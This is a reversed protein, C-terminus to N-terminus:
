EQSIRLTWISRILKMYREVSKVSCDRHDAIEQNSHGALRMLAVERHKEDLLDLLEECSLPIQDLITESHPAKLIDALLVASSQDKGLVSEGREGRIREKRHVNAAKRSAIVVLLQWLDQRSELKKFRGHKAGMWLANLSSAALDNRDVVTTRANGLKKGAYECLREFYRNWIPSMADDDGSKLNAIWDSVTDDQNEPM